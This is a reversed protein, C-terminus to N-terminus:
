ACMDQSVICIFEDTSREGTDVEVQSLSLQEFHFQTSPRMCAATNRVASFRVPLM